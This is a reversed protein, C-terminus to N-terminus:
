SNVLADCFPDWQRKILYQPHFYTEAWVRVNKCLYEYGRPSIDLVARTVEVASEISPDCSNFVHPTGDTLELLAERTADSNFTVVPLGMMLAETGALGYHGDSVNDIVVTAGHRRALLVHELPSDHLDQTFADFHVRSLEEHHKIFSVCPTRDTWDPSYLGDVPTMCQTWFFPRDSPLFDQAGVHCGAFISYREWGGDEANYVPSTWHKGSDKNYYINLSRFAAPKDDRDLGIFPGNLNTGRWGKFHYVIADCWELLSVQREEDGIDQALPYQYTAQAPHVDRVYLEHEHRSYTKLQEVDRVVSGAPDFSNVVHLIKSM